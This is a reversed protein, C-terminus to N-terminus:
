PGDQTNQTRNVWVSLSSRFRVGVVIVHGPVWRDERGKTYVYVCGVWRELGVVSRLHGLRRVLVLLHLQVEAGEPTDGQAVPRDGDHM